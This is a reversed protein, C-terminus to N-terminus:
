NEEDEASSNSEAPPVVYDSDSDSDSDGSIQVEETAVGKGREFVSSATRFVPLKTRCQDEEANRESAEPSKEALITAYIDIVGGDNVHKAMMEVSQQEDLVLLANAMDDGPYKWQLKTNKLALVSCSVPDPLKKLESLSLMPHEITSLGTKGGLYVSDKGDHEFDGSFHFRVCLYDLPDM